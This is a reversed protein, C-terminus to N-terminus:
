LALDWTEGVLKKGFEAHREKHTLTFGARRYVERAETLISQTWLTIRKYGAQRAFRVCEDVLRSGIGYGRASPEVHLLRLRAITSTKVESGKHM